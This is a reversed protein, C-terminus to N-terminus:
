HKWEYRAEQVIEKEVTKYYDVENTYVKEPEYTGWNNIFGQRVLESSKDSAEKSSYFLWLNGRRDRVFWRRKVIYKYVPQNKDEVEQKTVKRPSVEIYREIIHDKPQATIKESTKTGNTYTIVKTGNVGQQFVRSKAKTSAYKDVTKYPIVETKTTITAGNKVETKTAVPTQAVTTQKSEKTASTAETTTQPAQESSQAATNVTEKQAATTTNTGAVAEAKVVETKVEAPQAVTAQKQKSKALFLMTGTVVVALLPLVIFLKKKM